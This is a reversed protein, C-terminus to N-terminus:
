FRVKMFAKIRQQEFDRSELSNWGGFRGSFGLSGVKVNHDHAITEDAVTPVFGTGFDPDFTGFSYEYNFGFEAGGLIYRALLIVNNKSHDGSAMEHLQYAQLATNGDKLNADYHEYSLSSYIVDTFQYGAGVQVMKYDLDRDDDSISDFPKFQYGTVGNVTVLGPNGFIDATSNGPSYFNKTDACAVGGGPCSGALYPLYKANNLRKDTEKIMKVKGFLDVGKGFDLTYKGKIVAIDTKKDQFPAYASRFNHGIPTSACHFCVM